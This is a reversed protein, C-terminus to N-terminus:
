RLKALCFKSIDKVDLPLTIATKKVNEIKRATEALEVWMKATKALELM